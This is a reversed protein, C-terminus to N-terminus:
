LRRLLKLQHIAAIAQEQFLEFIKVPVLVICSLSIFFEAITLLYAAFLAELLLFLNVQTLNHFHVLSLPLQLYDLLGLRFIKYYNKEGCGFNWSKKIIQIWHQISHRTIDSLTRTDLCLFNKM